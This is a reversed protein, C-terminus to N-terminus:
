HLLPATHSHSRAVQQSLSPPSPASARRPPPPSPQGPAQLRAPPCAACIFYVNVLIWSVRHIMRQPFRVLNEGLENSDRNLRDQLVGPAIGMEKALAEGSAYYRSISCDMFFCITDQSSGNRRVIEWDVTYETTCAVPLGNRTFLEILERREGLGVVTQHARISDVILVGPRAASSPLPATAAGRHQQRVM